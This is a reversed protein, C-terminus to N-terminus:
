VAKPTVSLYRFRSRGVTDTSTFRFSLNGAALTLTQEISLSAIQDSHDAQWYIGDDGTVLSGSQLLKLEEVHNADTSHWVRHGYRVVYEGARPIAITPGLDNPTDGSPNGDDSAVVPAGGAFEWLGNDENWRFVWLSGDGAHYNFFQGDRPTSPFSTSTSGFTENVADRITNLNDMVEEGSATNGPGDVFTHPLNPILSM